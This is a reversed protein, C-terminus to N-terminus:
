SSVGRHQLPIILCHPLDAQRAPSLPGGLWSGTQDGAPGPPRFRLDERKDARSEEHDCQDVKQARDIIDDRCPPCARSRCAARPPALALTRHHWSPGGKRRFALSRRSSEAPSSAGPGAHKRQYTCQGADERHSQVMEGKMQPRVPNVWVSRHCDAPPGDTDTAAPRPWAAAIVGRDQLTM